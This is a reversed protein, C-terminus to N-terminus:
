QQDHGGPRDAHHDITPHSEVSGTFLRPLESGGNGARQTVALKIFGNAYGLAILLAVQGLNDGGAQLFELRVAIGVFNGTILNFGTLASQLTRFGNDVGLQLAAQAAQGGDTRCGREDSQQSRNDSNQVREALDGFLLSGTQTSDGATNRFSQ